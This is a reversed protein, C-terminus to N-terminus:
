QCIHPRGDEGQFYTGPICVFGNRAAYSQDYDGGGGFAYFPATAIAGTAGVVGAAIEGPWFARSDRWDRHQAANYRNMDQGHLQKRYHNPQQASASSTVALAAALVVAAAIPRFMTKDGKM